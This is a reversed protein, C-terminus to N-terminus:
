VHCVELELLYNCFGYLLIKIDNPLVCLILYVIARISQLVGYWSLSFWVQIKRYGVGGVEYVAVKGVLAKPQKGKYARTRHAIQGVRTFVCTPQMAKSM